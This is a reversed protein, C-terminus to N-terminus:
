FEIEATVPLHDAAVVQPIDTKLVTLEPSVFIYDIKIEPKDTPFTFNCEGAFKSDTDTLLARIPDLLPSDPTLNFDGMLVVPYESEKVAKCVVEACLEAEDPQLGFHIGLLTLKKDGVTTVAKAMCRDEYYGKYLRPAKPVAVVEADILPTKSLLANGYPGHGTIDIAPAFFAHYGIMEAIVEAQGVFAAGEGKGYVENMVVVDPDEKRITEAMLALDIVGKAFDRGHQINITMCKM